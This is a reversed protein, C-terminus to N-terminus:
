KAQPLQAKLDAALTIDAGLLCAADMADAVHRYPVDADAKIVVAQLSTQRLKAALLGALQSKDVKGGDLYLTGDRTVTLEVNRAPLNQASAAKPLDVNLGGSQTLFTATVMFIILLVLCVDTLPTINIEAFVPKGRRVNAM